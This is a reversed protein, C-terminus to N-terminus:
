NMMTSRELLLYESYLEAGFDRMRANLYSVAGSVGPIDAARELCRIFTDQNLGKDIYWWKEKPDNIHNEAVQAIFGNFDKESATLLIKEDGCFFDFLFKHLGQYWEEPREVGGNKAFELIKDKDGDMQEWFERWEPKHKPVFQYTAYGDYRNNSHTQAKLLLPM